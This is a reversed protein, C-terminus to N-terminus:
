IYSPFWDLDYNMHARLTLNAIDGIELSYERVPCVEM